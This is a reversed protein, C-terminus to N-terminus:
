SGPLHDSCRSIGTFVLPGLAVLLGFTLCGLLFFGTIGCHIQRLVPEVIYAIFVGHLLYLTYSQEGVFRIIWRLFPSNSLMTCFFTCILVSGVANLIDNFDRFAPCAKMLIFSAVYFGVGALVWRKKSLSCLSVQRHALIIGLSFQPIHFTFFSAFHTTPLGALWCVLLSGEGLVLSLVIFRWMSRQLINFLLPFIIYLGLIVPIFWLSDNFGWSSPFFNRLLSLHLFLVDWSLSDDNAHFLHAAWKALFFMLPTIIWYPILLARIRRAYWTRWDIVSVCAMSKMLGYGSIVFFVQVFTGAFISGANFLSFVVGGKVPLWGFWHHFFVGIIALGKM